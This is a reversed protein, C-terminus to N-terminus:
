SKVWASGLGALGLALACCPGSPAALLWSVSLGLGLALASILLAGTLGVRRAMWLAPVMLSAFVLMLGLAPVAVSAVLAFM